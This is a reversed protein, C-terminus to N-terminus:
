RPEIKIARDIMKNKINAVTKQRDFVSKKLEDLKADRVSLQGLVYDLNQFNFYQKLYDSLNNSDATKNFLVFDPEREGKNTIRSWLEKKNKGKCCHLMWQELYMEHALDLVDKQAKLLNEEANILRYSIKSPAWFKIESIIDNSNHPMNSLKYAERCRSCKMEWHEDFLGETDRFKTVTYFGDGCPCHHKQKSVNKFAM